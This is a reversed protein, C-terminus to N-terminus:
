EGKAIENSKSSVSSAMAKLYGETFWLIRKKTDLDEDLTKTMINGLVNLKDITEKYFEDLENDIM